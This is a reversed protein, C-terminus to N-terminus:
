KDCIAMASETPKGMIALTALKTMEVDIVKSSFPLSRSARVNTEIVQSLRMCCADSKGFLALWVCV